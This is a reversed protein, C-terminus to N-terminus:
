MYVFIDKLICEKSGTSSIYQELPWASISYLFKNLDVATEQNSSTSQVSNFCKILNHRTKLQRNKNSSISFIKICLLKTFCQQAPNIIYEYIKEVTYYM